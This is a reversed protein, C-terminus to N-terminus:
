FLHLVMKWNSPKKIEPHENLYSWWVEDYCVTDAIDDMKRKNELLIKLGFEDGRSTLISKAANKCWEKREREVKLPPANLGRTKLYSPIEVILPNFGKNKVSLLITSILHQSFRYNEMNYGQKVKKGVRFAKYPIQTEFVIYHTE